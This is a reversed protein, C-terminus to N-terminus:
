KVTFEQGGEVLLAAYTTELGRSSVHDGPMKSLVMGITASCSKSASMGLCWGSWGHERLGDVWVRLCWHITNRWYARSIACVRVQAGQFLDEEGRIDVIVEGGRAECAADGERCRLIQFFM